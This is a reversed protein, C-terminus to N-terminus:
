KRTICYPCTCKQKFHQLHVLGRIIGNHIDFRDEIINYYNIDSMNYRRHIAYAVHDALQILRSAKSDAFIPVECINRLQNGWKNGSKRFDWALSQLGSEYSCKDIVIMGRQKKDDEIHHELYKDFRSSLDEFAMLVPDQGPFSDKHVACAFVTIKKRSSNIYGLVRKIVDIRNEKTMNKWPEEVGRFIESAHFESYKSFGPNLEEALLELRSSLWRLSEEPVCVGGLVFHSENPNKSSGSDDLYLFHM